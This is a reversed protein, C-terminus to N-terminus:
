TGQDTLIERPVGFRTFIDEFLFSVVVNQTAFHLAKAEVWKTVYDTCVIFKKKAKFTLQNIWCFGTGM